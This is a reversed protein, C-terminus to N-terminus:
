AGEGGTSATATEDSEQTSQANQYQAALAAHIVFMRKTPEFTTDTKILKLVTAVEDDKSTDWPAPTHELSQKQAQMSAKEFARLFETSSSANQLNILVGIDQNGHFVRGLGSAVTRIADVASDDISDIDTTSNTMITDFYHHTYRPDPFSPIWDMASRARTLTRAITTVGREISPLDKKLIGFAIADKCPTLQRASGGDVEGFWWLVDRVPWYEETSDDHRRFRRLAVSGYAWAEPDITDMSSISRTQGVESDFTIFATPRHQIEEELLQGKYKQNVRRYVTEYLDLTQIGRSATAVEGLTRTRTSGGSTPKDIEVLLSGLDDQICALETFDGRPTFIRTDNENSGTERVIKPMFAFYFGAVLCAVCRGRHASGRSKSMGLPKTRGSSATLVTFAQNYTLNTDGVGKDSPLAVGGCAICPKDDEGFEDCLAQTFTEIATEYRDVQSPFHQPNNNGVYIPSQAYLTQIEEDLREIDAHPINHTELTGPDVQDDEYVTQQDGYSGPFPSQPSPIRRSDQPDLNANIEHAIAKRRHTNALAQEIIARLQETARRVDADPPCTIQTRAIDVLGDDLQRSLDVAGVNVFPDSSLRFLVIGQPETTDAGVATTGTPGENFASSETEQTM